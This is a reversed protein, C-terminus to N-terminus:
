LELEKGRNIHIYSHYKKDKLYLMMSEVWYFYEKVTREKTYDEQTIFKNM